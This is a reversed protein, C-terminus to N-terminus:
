STVQQPGSTTFSRLRTPATCSRSRERALRSACVRVNANEFEVKYHQPDVKVPDQALAPIACAFLFLSLYLVRRM